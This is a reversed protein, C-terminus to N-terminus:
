ENRSAGSRPRGARYQSSPSILSGRAAPVIGVICDPGHLQRLHARLQEAEERTEVGRWRVPPQRRRGAPRWRSWDQWKVVLPKDPKPPLYRNPRPKSQYHGRM